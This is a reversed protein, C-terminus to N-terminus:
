LWRRLFGAVRRGSWQHEGKFVDHVVRDGANWVDYNKRVQRVAARTAKLPFISDKTGSEILMPRPAVLAALDSMDFSQALGPAFNCICHHMGMVSGAFTNMYGSVIAVKFRKEAACSWLTMQGGGSIGMLGIRKPDVQPQKELFDLGRQLDNLRIRALTTGLMSTITAAAHCGTEASKESMIEPDRREGFGLPEVVLVPIGLRVVQLAYDKQYGDGEKRSRGAEDMALLDKAGIGHGPTAVMAPSRGRGRPSAGDPICLWCLSKLQPATNLLLTTRTYGDLQKHELVQPRLATRKIPPGLCKNLQRRAKVQWTRAQEVSRVRFSMAPRAPLWQLLNPRIGLAPDIPVNSYKMVPKYEHGNVGVVM